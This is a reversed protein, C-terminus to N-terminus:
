YTFCFKKSTQDHSCLCIDAINASYTILKTEMCQIDVQQSLLLLACQEVHYLTDTFFSNYFPVDSSYRAHAGQSKTAAATCCM